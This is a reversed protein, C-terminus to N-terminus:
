LIKTFQDGTLYFGEKEYLKSMAKEAKAFSSGALIAVCKRAKAEMTLFQCVDKFKGKGRYVKLIVHEILVPKNIYWPVEEGILVLYTENIIFGANVTVDVCAKNDLLQFWDKPRHNLVKELAGNIALRDDENAERVQLYHTM